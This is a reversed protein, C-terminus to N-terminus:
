TGSTALQPKVVMGNRVRQAGQVIVRDGENLGERVVAIGDRQQGITVYKTAVKNEGDVILVFTGSQDAALAVEPVVLVPADAPQEMVVRITQSNVLQGNPNDFTARVIQSDTNPDVTNDFYDVKGTEAYYSGDAMKLRIVPPNVPAMKKYGLIERQSPAFEAWVRDDKVITTLAGSAPSVINGETIATRGIRGRIPADIRTYGLTINALELAAEAIQVAANAQALEAERTDATAQSGTRQKLLEQARENNVQANQAVAKASALQAKKANVDAQFPAPDIQYLLQGPEVIDGETFLPKLLTGTVRVQIDVRESARIRGIFESISPLERKEVPSVTVSPESGSELPLAPTALVLAFGIALMRLTLREATDSRLKCLM